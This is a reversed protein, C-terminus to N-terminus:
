RYELERRSTRYKWGVIEEMDVEAIAVPYDVGLRELIEPKVEGYLAITRGDLKLVGCRGPIYYKEACEPAPRFPIGMIRLLSYLPAQIQEISVEDDMVAMGLMNKEVISNGSVYAVPGIEFIKVPKPAHLNDRLAGLLSVGISPRLFSYDRQVPNRVEVPQKSSLLALDPSTLVLRMIETFGLGIMIDRTRREMITAHELKGRTSVDIGLPYLSEYGISIAVDEVLDIAGIIDARFPPIEVLVRGKGTPKANFRMYGLHLSAEYATIEYGLVDRILGVDLVTNERELRPTRMTSGDPAVISVRGIRAGPREALNSVLIDLTKSVIREDTGTVDVFVDKTGVEVATISSNIVPPMAIISDGALLFPHMEDRRSINGYKQGQETSALVEKASMKGGGTLPEFSATNLDLEKYHLTRSPLKSLDHLGIAAKRRRRGITDHLKEQFQIIQKLDDEDRININYIIAGGIYPRTAPMSTVITVPTDEVPPANWGKELRLLGYVARKIGEISYMDPRDPNVEVELINDDIIDTECKLRFLADRVEELSLGQIVREVLGIPYKFVPM